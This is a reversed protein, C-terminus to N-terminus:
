FTFALNVYDPADLAAAVAAADAAHRATLADDAATVVALAENYAVEAALFAAVNAKTRSRRARTEANTLNAAAIRFAADAADHATQLEDRTTM